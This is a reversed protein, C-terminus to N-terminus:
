LIIEELRDEIFELVEPREQFSCNSIDLVRLEQLKILTPTLNKLPNNDVYLTKLNKIDGITHPLKTIRNNSLKLSQLKSMEGIEKPIYRLKHGSIDLFRLSQLYHIENPLSNLKVPLGSLDLTELSLLEEDTKNAYDTFHRLWCCICDKGKEETKELEQKWKEMLERTSYKKSNPASSEKINKDLEDMRKKKQELTYGDFSSHWLCCAAIEALSETVEDDIILEKAVVKEWEYFELDAGAFLSWHRQDETQQEDDAYWDTKDYKIHATRENKPLKAPVLSLLIDYHQKLSDLSDWWDPYMRKYPKVIDEFPVQKLLEQYTM